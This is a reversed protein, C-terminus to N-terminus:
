SRFFWVQIPICVLVIVRGIPLCMVTGCSWLDQTLGIFAHAVKHCTEAGGAGQHARASIQALLQRMYLDNRELRVCGKMSQFPELMHWGRDLGANVIWGKGIFRTFYARLIRM